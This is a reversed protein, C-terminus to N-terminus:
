QTLSFRATIGAFVNTTKYANDGELRIWEHDKTYKLNTPINM